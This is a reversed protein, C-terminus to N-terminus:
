DTARDGVSPAEGSGPKEKEDEATEDGEADSEDSHDELEGEGEYPRVDEEYTDSTGTYSYDAPEDKTIAELDRKIDETLLDKEFEKRVDEGYKKLDRIGRAITRAFEPLKEPGIVVLVVIMLIILEGPGMSFM